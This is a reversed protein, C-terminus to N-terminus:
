VDDHFIRARRLPQLNDDFAGLARGPEVAHQSHVKGLQRSRPQFGQNQRARHAEPVGRDPVGSIVDGAAIRDCDVHRFRDRRLRFALIDGEVDHELVVVDDNEVLRLPQHHMGRRAVLGARQHVRQDGM